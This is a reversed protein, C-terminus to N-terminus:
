KEFSSKCPLKEEYVRTIECLAKEFDVDNYTDNICVAKINSDKLAGILESNDEKIGFFRGRSKKSVPYFNGSALQRYRFVRQSVDFPTRFKNRSVADFLSHSSEWAQNFVSKIYPAPLHHEEFGVFLNWNELKLINRINNKLPYKFSVYKGFNKFFSKRYSFSKNIDWVENHMVHFILDDKSDYFINCTHLFDCPKGKKFFFEPGIRANLFVDDNFYVFKEALNAIRHLNLEIPRSSFTPLYQELIFDEHKVINLKECDTNLWQPVHGWTVFHVRRVWPAYEEVARFWYKLLGMDRYRHKESGKSSSPQYKRKEELWKEDNGDVWTIVFDIPGGSNKM